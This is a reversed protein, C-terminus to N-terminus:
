PYGCFMRGDVSTECEQSGGCIESDTCQCLSGSCRWAPSAGGPCDAPSGCTCVFNTGIEMCSQGPSCAFGCAGCHDPDAIEVNRCIGDCCREVASGPVCSQGGCNSDECDIVGDCDDDLGDFCSREFALCSGSDPLAADTGADSGADSPSGGDVGADELAPGADIGGDIAGADPLSGSDPLAADTRGADRGADRRAGGDIRGADSAPLDDDSCAALLLLLTIRM